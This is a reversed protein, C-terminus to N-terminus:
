NTVTFLMYTLNNKDRETIVENLFHPVRSLVTQDYMRYDTLRLEKQLRCVGLVIDSFDANLIATIDADGLDAPHLAFSIILKKATVSFNYAYEGSKAQKTFPYKAPNFVFDAFEVVVSDIDKLNCDARFKENFVKDNAYAIKRGTLQSSFTPVPKPKRTVQFVVFAVAILGILLLLILLIKKLMVKVM